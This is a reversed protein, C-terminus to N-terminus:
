PVGRDGSLGSPRAMDRRRRVGVTGTQPRVRTRHGTRLRRRRGASGLVPRNRRNRDSEPPRRRRHPGGHRHCQRRGVRPPPQVLEPWRRTHLRYYRRRPFQRGGRDPRGPQRPDPGPELLRRARRQRHRGRTDVRTEDMASTRVLITGDLADSAGHGNPQVAIPVGAERAYRILAAADDADVVDVVARVSQDVALNWPTRAADFGADDALLVRGRVASRLTDLSDARAHPRGLGLGTVALGGGILFNRRGLVTSTVIHPNRPTGLAAM